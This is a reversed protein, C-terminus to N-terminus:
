ASPPRNEIFFGVRDHGPGRTSRKAMREELMANMSPVASAPTNTPRFNVATAYDMRQASDNKVIGPLRPYLLM